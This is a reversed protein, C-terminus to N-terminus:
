LLGIENSSYTNNSTVLLYNKKYIITHINIRERSFYRNELSFCTIWWSKRLVWMLVLQTPMWGFNMLFRYNKITKRTCWIYKVMKILRSFVNYFCSFLLVSILKVREEQWEYGNKMLVFKLLCLFSYNIKKETEPNM